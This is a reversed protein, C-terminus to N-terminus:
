SKCKSNNLLYNFDGVFCCTKILYSKTSIQDTFRVKFEGSLILYCDEPYIGDKWLIGPEVTEPELFMNLM